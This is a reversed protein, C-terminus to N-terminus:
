LDERPEVERLLVADLGWHTYEPVGRHTYFAAWWENLFRGWDRENGRKETVGLAAEVIDTGRATREIEEEEMLSFIFLNSYRKFKKETALTMVAIGRKRKCRTIGDQLPRINRDVKRMM